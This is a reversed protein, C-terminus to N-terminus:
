RCPLRRRPSIFDFELEVDVPMVMRDPDLRSFREGIDDAVFAPQGPRMDTALVADAARARHDEVIIRYSGAQHERDLRLALADSRDFTEGVAVFQVGHLLGEDGMMRELAAEARGAEQHKRYVRQLGIGFQRVLLNELNQRRVETAARAILVDDLGHAAPSSVHAPRWRASLLISGAGTRHKM